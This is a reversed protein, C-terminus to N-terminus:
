CTPLFSSLHLQLKTSVVETVSTMLAEFNRLRGVIILTASTSVVKAVRIM